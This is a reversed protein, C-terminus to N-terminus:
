SIAHIQAYVNFLREVEQDWNYHEHVVAQGCKGMQKAESSHELIWQISQTIADINHPNVCLGCNNKEVITRWASFNSALVPLGASMYEFLKIPLSEIYTDLPHLLCLGLCSESFIRAVEQRSVMGRFDVSQWEPLTKVFLETKKDIFNGAMILRVNLLYAAKIMEVIGRELSIVGVYCIAQMNLPASILEKNIVLETLRPYNKVDVANAGIAKFRQAIYPTACVTIDLHRAIFNEIKEIIFAILKRLVRPIWRKTMIDRPLDEHADYIVTNGQWKLLLGYPLLEPDHFHFISAQTLKALRYARYSRFIIRNLRSLKKDTHLTHHIINQADPVLCGPAVLHVEYGRKALSICEKHFIRIDNAPHASTIHCIKPAM